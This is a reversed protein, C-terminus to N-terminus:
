GLTAAPVVWQIRYPRIQERGEQEWGNARSNIWAADIDLLTHAFGKRGKPPPFYVTLVLKRGTQPLPVHAISTLLALASGVACKHAGLGACFRYGETPRDYVPRRDPPFPCVGTQGRGELQILLNITYASVRSGFVPNPCDDVHTSFSRFGTESLGAEDYSMLCADVLLGNGRYRRGAAATLSYVRRLAAASNPENIIAALRRACAQTVRTYKGGSVDGVSDSRTCLSGPADVISRISDVDVDFEAVPHDKYMRAYKCRELHQNKVTSSGFSCRVRHSRKSRPICPHTIHPIHCSLFPATCACVNVGFATRPDVRSGCRQCSGRM